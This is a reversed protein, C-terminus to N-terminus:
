RKRLKVFLKRFGLALLVCVPIMLLYVWTKGPNETTFGGTYRLHAWYAPNKKAPSINKDALYDGRALQLAKAYGNGKGLYHHFSKLIIATSADDANWMSTITHDCGAYSFARSLSMLGEGNVLQGKGSECASLLLLKVHSLNLNYVEPLYLRTKISSDAQKPYFAIYSKSPQQNDALAHTALHIIDYKNALQDFRQKTAGANILRQGTLGVTEQLSHSLVPWKSDNPAAFPAFSLTKLNKNGEPISSNQLINCSYNYTLSYKALLAEGHNDTLEEFPLLNLQDDPIIVLDTKGTLYASVPEILYQYLKGTAQKMARNHNGGKLQTITQLTNLQQYFDQNFPIESFNFHKASIAFCLLSNNGIHYSLVTTSAPIQEQFKALVLKEAAINASPAHTIRQIKEQVNTLAIIANNLQQRSSDGAATLSLRTITNKLQTEAQLLPQPVNTGSRIRLAERNLAVIAAKNEEDLYFAKEIYLRKGTNKFLQMCAAIAAKHVQYKRESILLRAEDNDYFRSIHAALKYFSNYTQLAADLDTNRHMRHYLLEQAAAKAILTELLEITNFVGSYKEPNNSTYAPNFGPHFSRIAYQYYSIGKTLQGLQIWADGSLKLTIGKIHQPTNLALPQQAKFLYHLASDPLKKLLFAKALDNLQAPQQLPLKRLYMLTSDAQNMALYVAGINHNLNETEQRYALLQQYIALAERYRKLKRYAAALNNQYTLLLTKDYAKSSKLVSIAKEYFPISKNYNGTAYAMVGLTNFLREQEKVTPFREAIAKAQLYCNNASDPQGLRYFSNGCYVYPAFLVSDAVAKVQKKLRFAKKFFIIAEQQRNLVQMFAGASTYTKLLFADDAKTASLAKIVELYYKEALADTRDSPSASNAYHEALAFQKKYSPLALRQATATNLFFLCILFFCRNM